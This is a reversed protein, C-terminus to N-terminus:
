GIVEVMVWGMPEGEALKRSVPDIRLGGRSGRYELFEALRVSKEGSGFGLRLPFRYPKKLTGDEALCEGIAELVSEMKERALAWGRAEYLDLEAEALLVYREYAAAAIDELGPMPPREGGGRGFLSAPHEQLGRYFRIEAEVAGKSWTEALLRIGTSGEPNQKSGYVEVLRFETAPLPSSDSAALTRLPDRLIDADGKKRPPNKLLHGEFRVNVRHADRKEWRKPRRLSLPARVRGEGEELVWRGPWLGRGQAQWVLDRRGAWELERDDFDAELAVRSRDFLFVTRLAGKLSSGPLYPGSLARPFVQIALEGRGKEITEELYGAFGSAAPARWAVAPRLGTLRAIELLAARAAFPGRELASLYRDLAPGKITELLRLPDFVWVEGRQFLYEYPELREGSGVHVPTLPTIRIRHRELFDPM